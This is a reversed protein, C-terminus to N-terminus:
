PKSSDKKFSVFEGSDDFECEGAVDYVELKTGKKILRGVTDHIDKEVVVRTSKWLVLDPVKDDGWSIVSGSTNLASFGKVASCVKVIKHKDLEDKVKSNDGGFFLLVGHYLMEMKM